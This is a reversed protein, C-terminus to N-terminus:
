SLNLHYEANFKRGLATFYVYYNHVILVRVISFTQRAYTCLLPLLASVVQRRRPPGFLLPLCTGVGRGFAAQQAAPSSLLTL